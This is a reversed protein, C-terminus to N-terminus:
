WARDVWGSLFCGREVRRRTMRCVVVVAQLTPPHTCEVGHGERGDQVQKRFKRHAHGRCLSM